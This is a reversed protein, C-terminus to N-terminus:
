RDTHKLLRGLRKLHPESAAACAAEIAEYHALLARGLATLTAGGGGSGGASSAIVEAGCAQRVEDLLTWARKYGIGSARAAASISGTEQVARLLDIKGPGILLETGLFLRPRIIKPLAKTRPGAGSSRENM